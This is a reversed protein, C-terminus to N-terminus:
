PKFHLVHQTLTVPNCEKYNLHQPVDVYAYTLVDGKAVDLAVPACQRRKDLIYLEYHGADLQFRKMTELEVGGDKWKRHSLHRPGSIVVNGDMRPKTRIRCTRKNGAVVTCSDRGYSIPTILDLEHDGAPLDLGIPFKGKQQQGDVFLYADTEEAEIVVTGPTSQLEAILKEVEKRDPADPALELYTQYSKIASRLDKMRREVDAINYVASPHPAIENAKKYLRLAEPLKGAEDAARAATFAESAAKAFKDPEAKRQSSPDAGAIRAGAVIALLWAWKMM